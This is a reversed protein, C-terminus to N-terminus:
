VVSRMGPEYIGAVYFVSYIYGLRVFVLTWRINIVSFFATAFCFTLQLGLWIMGTADINLWEYM